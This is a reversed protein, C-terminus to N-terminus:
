TLTRVSGFRASTRSLVSEASSSIPTWTPLAQWQRLVDLRAQLETWLKRGWPVHDDAVADTAQDAIGLLTLRLRREAATARPNGSKRERWYNQYSLRLEEAREISNSSCNGVQMKIAVRTTRSLRPLPLYGRPNAIVSRVAVDIDVVSM